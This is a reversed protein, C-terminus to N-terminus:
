KAKDSIEVETPGFKVKVKRGLLLGTMGLTFGCLIALEGISITVAGTTVAGITLGM